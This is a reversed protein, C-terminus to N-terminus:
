NGLKKGLQDIQKRLPLNGLVAGDSVAPAPGSGRPNRNRRFYTAGGSVGAHQSMSRLRAVIEPTLGVMDIHIIREDDVPDRDISHVEGPLSLVLEDPLSLAILVREGRVLEHRGRLTITHPDGDARRDCLRVVQQWDRCSVKIKRPVRRRTPKDNVIEEDVDPQRSYM